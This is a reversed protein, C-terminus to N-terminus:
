GANVCANLVAMRVPPGHAVQKLILSREGDAVEGDIELGRNFPGPHMVWAGNKLREARERTMGYRERYERKSGSAPGSDGHREFQIRLCIVADVSGVVSDLDHTVRAGLSELGTPAMAPPGCCIVEAGLGTLCAIDSRAVRSSVVDGVIVVRTGSFDFGAERGTARALTLADILAQTPHEHKGDGANVVACSVAEAVMKAGGAESTRVVLADVGMAEITRATDVISEGKSVSSGKTSLDLVKAGLRWGALTFSSRTRTSDEFFLNAVTRGRLEDGRLASADRAAALFWRVRDPALGQLGLLHRRTSGM